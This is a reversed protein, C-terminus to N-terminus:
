NGYKINLKDLILKAEKDELYVSGVDGHSDDGHYDSGASVFLNHKDAIKKFYDYDNAKNSYLAEIGDFGLGAIEDALNWDKMLCPHAFIALANNDHLLKIGDEVSLKESPIYAKSEHETYQMAEKYSIGKVEMIYNLMNKRTITKCKQVFADIDLNLGYYENIKNMMLIARDKRRQNANDCFSYLTYPIYNNKFLGVIHVTKGKYKCTLEIGKILIMNFEKQYEIFEKDGELTDHDTLALIDINREKAHKVLEHLTSYGDSYISHSHLDARM